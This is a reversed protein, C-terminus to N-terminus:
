NEGMHSGVKGKEKTSIFLRMTKKKEKVKM